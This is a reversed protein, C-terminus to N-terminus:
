ATHLPQCVKTVGVIFSHAVNSIFGDVHVGLDSLFFSLNSFHSNFFVSAPILTSFFLNISFPICVLYVLIDLCTCMQKCKSLTGTKWLSTRTARWLLSIAFATTWRCVPPFLSVQQPSFCLWTSPGSAKVLVSSFCWQSLFLSGCCASREEHRKGEQLDQWNRGHHLRRGKWVPQACVSWGYSGRSGGESGRHPLFYPFFLFSFVTRLWTHNFVSSM